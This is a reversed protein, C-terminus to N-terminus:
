ESTFALTLFIRFLPKLFVSFEIEAVSGILSHFLESHPNVRSDTMQSKVLDGATMNLLKNVIQCKVAFAQFVASRQRSLCGNMMETEDAVHEAVSHLHFHESVVAALTNGNRFTLLFLLVDVSQFFDCLEKLEKFGCRQFVASEKSQRYVATEASSFHEAQLPLVNVPLMVNDADAPCAVVSSRLTDVGVGGLCLLRLTRKFKWLADHIHETLVLFLLVCLTLFEARFPLVIVAQEYLPVASRHVVICRIEPEFFETFFVIETETVNVGQSM